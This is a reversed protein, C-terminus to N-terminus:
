DCGDDDNYYPYGNRWGGLPHVRDDARSLGIHQIPTKSDVAWPQLLFNYDVESDLLDQMQKKYLDGHINMFKQTSEITGILNKNRDYGIIERLKEKVTTLVKNQAFSPADTYPLFATSSQQFGNVSTVLPVVFKKSLDAEMDATARNLLEQQKFESLTINLDDLVDKFQLANIYQNQVPTPTSM